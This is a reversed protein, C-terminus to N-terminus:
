TAEIRGPEEPGKGVGMVIVSALVVLALGAVQTGTLTQGLVLLGALAAVAPEVSLLIGFVAAKLRRLALLELSYPLLSSLVALGLGKAVHDATWVDHGALGAPLVVVAAVCLALSLGDLEAFAAGTRASLLIYAAWCAGATLALLLGVWSLDGLPISLARSILLVGGAAAAVAVFDLPRRSLATTLVLPGLFEVTVAVGLPLHALSGYFSWNMLGLAFGFAVVTAWDARTHGRLTPRSVALLILAAFGVRLLVSGGAGIQPVLTAALAGGFQVSVIGGFVLVPAPVRDASM